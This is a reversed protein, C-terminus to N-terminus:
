DTLMKQHHNLKRPFILYEGQPNKAMKCAEIRVTETGPCIKGGRDGWVRVQPDRIVTRKGNKCDTKREKWSFKCNVLSM